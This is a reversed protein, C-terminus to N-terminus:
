AWARVILKWNANTIGQSAGTTKDTITFTSTQNGFRINLNTADPVISIGKDDLAATSESGVAIFVEDDVSYNHETTKCVLVCQVLLPKTGLGHALQLSGAATITQEPSPYYKFWASGISINGNSDAVIAANATGATQSAHFTDVTDANVLSQKKGAM